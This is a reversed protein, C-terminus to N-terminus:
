SAWRNPTIAPKPELKVVRDSNEAEITKLYNWLVPLDGGFEQHLERRAARTEEIIPADRM